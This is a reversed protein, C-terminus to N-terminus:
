SPQTQPRTLLVAVLDRHLELQELEASLSIQRHGCLHRGLQRDVARGSPVDKPETELCPEVPRAHAAELVRDGRDGDIRALVVRAVVM